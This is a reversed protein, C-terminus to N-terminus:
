SWLHYSDNSLSNTCIHFASFKRMRGLSLNVLWFSDAKCDIMQEAGPGDLTVLLTVVGEMMRQTEWKISLVLRELVCPSFLKFFGLLKKARRYLYTTETLKVTLWACTDFLFIGQAGEAIGYSKSTPWLSWENLWFKRIARSNNSNNIIENLSSKKFPDLLPNM